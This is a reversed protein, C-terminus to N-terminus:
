AGLYKKITCTMHMTHGTIPGQEFVTGFNNQCTTFFIVECKEHMKKEM